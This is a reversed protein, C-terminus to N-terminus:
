SSVMSQASPDQANTPPAVAITRAALVNTDQATMCSTGLFTAFNVPITTINLDLAIFLISTNKNPIGFLGDSLAKITSCYENNVLYSSSNKKHAPNLLSM